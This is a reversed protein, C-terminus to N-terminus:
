EREEEGEEEEGEEPLIRKRKRKGKGITDERGPALLHADQVAYISGSECYLGVTDTDGPMMCCGLPRSDCLFKHHRAQASTGDWRGCALESDLGSVFCLSPDERSFHFNTVEYKCCNAWHGFRTWKRPDFVSVDKERGAVGVFSPSTSLACLEGTGVYTRTAFPCKARFDVVSVHSRETVALLPTTNSALGVPLYAARTPRHVCTVARSIRGDKYQAVEKSWFHATSIESEDACLAVGAWGKERHSAGCLLRTENKVRREDVDYTLVYANALSDIVGVRVSSSSTDVSLSQIESGTVVDSEVADTSWRVPNTTVQCAFLRNHSSVFATKRNLLVMRNSYFSGPSIALELLPSAVLGQHVQTMKM